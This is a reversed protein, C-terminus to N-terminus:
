GRKYTCQLIEPRNNKLFTGELRFGDHDHLVNLSEQVNFYSKAFCLYYIGDLINTKGVGNAGTISVIRGEFSFSRSRYNKFQVLSLRTLQLYHDPHEM